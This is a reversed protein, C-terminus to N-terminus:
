GRYEGFTTRRLRDAEEKSIREESFILTGTVNKMRLARGLETEIEEVELPEGVMLPGASNYLVRTPHKETPLYTVEANKLGALLIRRAVIFSSPTTEKCCLTTRETQRVFARCEMHFARPMRYVSEGENLGTEMGLLLPAGLPSSLRIGVTTDPVYGSYWLAGDQRAMMVVPTRAATFPKQFGIRWGFRALLARLLVEAPYYENAPRERHLDFGDNRGRMWLLRGDMASVSFARTEGDRAAHALVETEGTAAADMGGDSLLADVWLRRPYPAEELIDPRLITGGIEMEGWLPAADALGLASKLAPNADRVSGYLVLRGGNQVHALLAANAPSEAVPVPSVLVASKLRAACGSFANMDVVGSLPVGANVAGVIFRDEFYPKALNEEKCYDDFPYVWVVPPAADPVHSLAAVLHATPELVCRQPMEGLTNDITLLSLHTPTGVGAEDVRCLALPLYIDHPAGEYRDMWPSNMFWPDHIYYRFLFGEGGPLRAIRSLYGAIELGFNGDLAAWPSNPPPLLDYGGDYIGALDVGDTAMDLGVTLNTGRTEVRCHCEKRFLNWFEVVKKRAEDLREPHFKEGDYTVGTPRWTESGFGFGNSLWLFDFGLDALFVNSQRGLFTAVSTGEAIGDPFAAYPTRDERMTHYCCVFAKAGFADGALIEPHLRYKFPSEAFEPGPDFAIGVRDAGAEKLARVIFRLDRYTFAPPNETYLFHASHLGVGDPDAAPNAAQTRSASGAYRAWEFEDDIKGKYALIESGDSAWLLVSAQEANRCLPAWDDMVRRCVARIAEPARSGFPKLSMELTINKLLKM